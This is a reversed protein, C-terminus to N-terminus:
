VSQIQQSNGIHQLFHVILSVRSRNLIHHKLLLRDALDRFYTVDSSHLDPLVLQGGYCFSVSQLEEAKDCSSLLLTPDYALGVHENM